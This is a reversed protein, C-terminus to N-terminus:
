VEKLYRAVYTLIFLLLWLICIGVLSDEWIKSWYFFLTILTAVDGSFRLKTLNM